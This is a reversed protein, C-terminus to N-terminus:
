LEISKIHKVLNEGDEMKGIYDLLANSWGSLQFVRNGIYEATGYGTLDISYVYPDAGTAKKYAEYSAQPTVGGSYTERWSQEDTLMVVRSYKKNKKTAYNFVLRSETGGGDYARKFYQVVDIVPTRSSITLEKLSDSYLVVDVDNNSQSLVAGFIAAREFNGGSMSGSMDVAILTKGDLIPVNSLSHDLAYSIADVLKRNGQVNQYATYFRFPLQRSKLVQEKDTLIEYAKNIVEESVGSKVLNNLNRLLAMFGIKGSLVMDEWSQKKLEAKVKDKEEKTLNEKKAKAEAEQGAKTLKSEWTKTNRLEGKILKEWAEKQEDTAYKPNPHVMNFIDVLKMSKGEGRYKALQYADFKLIARRFGRKVQKPLKMDLLAAVELIDDPRVISKRLARMVLDDGKHMKALEALLVHTVSRMNFEERAVYALQAIFKHDVKTLLKIIRDQRQAGSEYYKNELFTSLVSYTLELEPSLTYAKGGALNNTTRGQSKTNFRSM